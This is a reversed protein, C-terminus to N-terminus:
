EECPTVLIRQALGRGMACRGEGVRLLLPGNQTNLVTVSVGPIVGMASLKQVMGRGAPLIQEVRASKGPPLMPLPLPVGASPITSKGPEAPTEDELVITDPLTREDPEAPAKSELVDTKM